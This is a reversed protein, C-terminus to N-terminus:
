RSRGQEMEMVIQTLWEGLVPIFSFQSAWWAILSVLVTAGMVTGLGFALGRLFQFLIMRWLSNQVRIFRHSNLTRLETTLADIQQTQDQSM